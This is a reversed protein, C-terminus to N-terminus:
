FLVNIPLPPLLTHHPSPNYHSHHQQQQQQQKSSYSRVKKELKQRSDLCGASLDGKETLSFSFVLFRHWSLLLTHFRQKFANLFKRKKGTISPISFLCEALKGRRKTAKKTNLKPCIRVQFDFNSKFKCHVFMM